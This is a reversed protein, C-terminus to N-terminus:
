IRGDEVEEKLIDEFSKSDNDTYGYLDRVDKPLSSINGVGYAMLIESTIKPIYTNTDTILQIKDKEDQKPEDHFIAKANDFGVAEGRVYGELTGLSKGTNYGVVAVGIIVAIVTM